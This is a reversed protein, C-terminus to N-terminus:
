EGLIDRVTSFYSGPLRATTHELTGDSMAGWELTVEKPVSIHVSFTTSENRPSARHRDMDIKILRVADVVRTSVPGGQEPIRIRSNNPAKGRDDDDIDLITCANQPSILFGLLEVFAEFRVGEFKAIM